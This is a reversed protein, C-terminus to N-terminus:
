GSKRSITGSQQLSEDESSETVNGTTSETVNGTTSQSLSDEQAFNTPLLQNGGLTILSATIVLAAFVHIFM